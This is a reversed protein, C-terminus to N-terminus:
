YFLKKLYDILMEIHKENIFDDKYKQFKEKTLKQPM